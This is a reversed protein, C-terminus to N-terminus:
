GLGQEDSVLIKRQVISKGFHLKEM